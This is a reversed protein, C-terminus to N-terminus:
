DLLRFRRLGGLSTFLYPIFQLVPNYTHEQHDGGCIGSLDSGSCIRQLEDGRWVRRRLPALLGPRESSRLYSGQVHINFINYLRYMVTYNQLVWELKLTNMWTKFYENLNQLKENLIQLVWELKATGMWTKCYENLNQQIWELKKMWTKYNKMWTKHYGNM